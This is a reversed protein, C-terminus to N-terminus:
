DDISDSELDDEVDEDDEHFYVNPAGIIGVMALRGKTDPIDGYLTELEGIVQARASNSQFCDLYDGVLAPDFDLPDIERLFKLYGSTKKTNMFFILLEKWLIDETPIDAKGLFVTEAKSGHRLEYTYLNLEEARERVIEYLGSSIKVVIKRIFKKYQDTNERAFM